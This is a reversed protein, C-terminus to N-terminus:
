KKKWKMRKNAKQQERGSKSTIGDHWTSKPSRSKTPQYVSESEKSLTRHPHISIDWLPRTKKKKKPFSNSWRHCGIRFCRPSNIHTQLDFTFTRKFPRLLFFTSIWSIWIEPKHNETLTNLVFTSSDHIIYALLWIDTKM